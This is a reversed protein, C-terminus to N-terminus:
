AWQGTRMRAALRKARDGVQTAWKSNLMEDAATEWDAREAAALMNKFELLHQIGENFTMNELVTRRPEDLAITWPLKTRLQAQAIAIRNKLLYRSEERTIGCGVRKDICTGVGITSYGRSDLYHHLIEGEDQVLEDELTTIM